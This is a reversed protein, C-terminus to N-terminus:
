NVEIDFQKKRKELERKEQLLQDREEMTEVIKFGAGPNGKILGREYLLGM